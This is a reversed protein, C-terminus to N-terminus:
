EGLMEMAIGILIGRAESVKPESEALYDLAKVVRDLIPKEENSPNATPANEEAPKSHSKPNTRKADSRKWTGAQVADALAELQDKAMRSLKSRSFGTAAELERLSLAVKRKHHRPLAM